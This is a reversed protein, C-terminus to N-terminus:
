AHLFFSKVSVVEGIITSGMRYVAGCHWRCVSVVGVLLYHSAFVHGRVWLIAELSSNGLQLLLDTSGVSFL